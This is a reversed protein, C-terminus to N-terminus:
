YLNNDTVAALQEISKLGAAKFMQVESPTLIPWKEIPTGTGIQEQGEQFQRYRANFRRRDDDTAKRDVITNKNAPQVIQIYEVDDYIQRGELSTKHKNFVAKIYFVAITSRDDQQESSAFNLGTASDYTNTM